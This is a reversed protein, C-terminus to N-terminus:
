RIAVVGHVHLWTRKGSSGFFLGGNSRSQAASACFDGQWYKIRVILCSVLFDEESVAHGDSWSAWQPGTAHGRRTSIQRPKWM